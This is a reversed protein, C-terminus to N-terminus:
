QHTIANRLMAEVKARPQAGVAKDVPEGNEDLLLLTPISMVQYRAATQPSDDVNVRAFRLHDSSHDGALAEFTPGFAKCPGCWPAWFDVLTFGGSLAADFTDDTLDTVAGTGDSKATVTADPSTGGTLRARLRAAWGRTGAALPDSTDGAPETSREVRVGKWFAVHGKINRAAMSPKPYYWAADAKTKGDVVVDFYSATGKWPCRTHTDSPTIHQQNVSEIPFYHNGEVNVTANSEAIVAGNWIARM